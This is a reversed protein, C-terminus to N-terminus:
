DCEPSLAGSIFHFVFVSRVNISYDTGSNSRVSVPTNSGNNSFYGGRYACPGYTNTSKELTWEYVNGALDYINKKSNTDSAGTTLLIMDTSSTGMKQSVINEGSSTVKVKNVTGTTYSIFTSWPSAQSYEGRNITFRQNYYNGWESSNSTLLTNNSLNEKVKIHKLVLDWQVGFLLTTTKGGTAFEKALTGAQSCTVYNYPYANQKIVATTLTDTSAGRATATGTEYKGIYFGGNDRISNLVTHKTGNYESLSLGCGNTLAKQGDTLGTTAETLVTNNTTDWGYWEDKFGCTTRNSNTGTKAIVDNCYDRLAGYIEEDTTASATVSKPVEIWVWENNNEDKITLGTNLDNNTIENNTPNPLFPTTESTTAITTGNKDKTGSGGGGGGPTVTGDFGYYNGDIEVRQNELDIKNTFDVDNFYKGLETQLNGVTINGNESALAGMYALQVKEAISKERTLDRARGAQNLISNEGSLMSISIGALILLVIITIVLAILTIGAKKNKQKRKTKKM